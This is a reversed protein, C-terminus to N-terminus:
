SRPTSPPTAPRTVGTFTARIATRSLYEGNVYDFEGGCTILTLAQGPVPGVLEGIRGSTLEEVGVTEISDVAYTHISGDSGTLAVEDDEALDKVNFFVSPGVGWYDVHGAMVVNGPEGLQATQEYWAVVWPGTPNQMVGDLIQLTEVEADIEAPESAIAVPTTRLSSPRPPQQGVPGPRLAGTTPMEGVTNSQITSSPTSSAQSAGTGTDQGRAGRLPAIGVGIGGVATALLAARRAAERRSMGKGFPNARESPQPSRSQETM